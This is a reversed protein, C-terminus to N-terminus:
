SGIRVYASNSSVVAASMGAIGGGVVVAPVPHPVRPAGRGGPDVVHERVGILRGVLQSLAM